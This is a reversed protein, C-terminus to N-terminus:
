LGTQRATLERGASERGLGWGARQAGACNVERSVSDMNELSVVWSASRLAPSPPTEIGSGNAAAEEDDDFFLASSPAPNAFGNALTFHPAGLAKADHVVGGGGCFGTCVGGATPSRALVDVFSRNGATSPRGHIIKKM